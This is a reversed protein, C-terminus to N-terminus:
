FGGSGMSASGPMGGSMGRRGGGSGGHPGGAPREGRGGEHLGDFAAKQLQEALLQLVAARQTDDLADNVSLWWERIQRNEALMAQEEGDIAPALDRLEAKPAQAAQLAADQLAAHRQTRARLLAQTKGEVQQGLTPRPVVTTPADSVATM